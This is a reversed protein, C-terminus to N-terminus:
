TPQFFPATVGCYYILKNKYKITPLTTPLYKKIIIFEIFDIYQNLIIASPPPSTTEVSLKTM